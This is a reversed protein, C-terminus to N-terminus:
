SCTPRQEARVQGRSVRGIRPPPRWMTSFLSRSCCSHRLTQSTSPLIPRRCFGGEAHRVAIACVANHHKIRGTKRRVGGVPNSGTDGAQFAPTRPEYHTCHCCSLPPVPAPSLCSYLRAPRRARSQLRNRGSNLPYQRSIRSMVPLPTARRSPQGTDRGDGDKPRPGPSPGVVVNPHVRRPRVGVRVGSARHFRPAEPTTGIRARGRESPAYRRTADM